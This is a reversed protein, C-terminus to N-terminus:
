RPLRTPTPGQSGSGAGPAAPGGPGPGGGPCAPITALEGDVECFVMGPSNVGASVTIDGRIRGLKGRAPVNASWQYTGPDLQFYGKSNTRIGCRIGGVQLDIESGAQGIYNSVIV